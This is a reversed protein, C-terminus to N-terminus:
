IIQSHLQQNINEKESLKFVFNANERKLQINESQVDFNIKRLEEIELRLQKIQSQRQHTPLKPGDSNRTHSLDDTSTAISLNSNHLDLSIKNPKNSKRKYRNLTPLSLSDESIDEIAFDKRFYM